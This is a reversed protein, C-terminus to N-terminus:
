SLFSPNGIRRLLERRERLRARWESGPLRGAAPPPRLAGVSPPPFLFDDQPNNPPRGQWRLVLAAVVAGQVTVVLGVLVSATVWAASVPRLGLASWDRGTLRLGLVDVPQYEGGEGVLAFAGRLDLPPLLVDLRQAGIRRPAVDIYRTPNIDGLGVGLGSAFALGDDHAAKRVEGAAMRGTIEAGDRLVDTCPRAVIRREGAVDNQVPRRRGHGALDFLQM